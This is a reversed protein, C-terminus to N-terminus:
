GKTQFRQDPLSDGMSGDYGCLQCELKLSTPNDANYIIHDHESVHTSDDLTDETGCVPCIYTTTSMYCM